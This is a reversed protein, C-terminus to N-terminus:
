SRDISKVAAPVSSDTGAAPLRIVFRNGQHDGPVLGITGGNPKAGYGAFNIEQIHDCDGSHIRWTPVKGM